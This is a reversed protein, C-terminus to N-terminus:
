QPKAGVNRYVQQVSQDQMYRNARENKVQQVQGESMEEQTKSANLQVNAEKVSSLDMNPPLGVNILYYDGTGWGVGDYVKYRGDSETYDKNFDPNQQKFADFGEQNVLIQGENYHVKNKGGNTEVHTMQSDIKVLHHDIGQLNYTYGSRGSIVYNVNTKQSSVDFADPNVQNGDFIAKNGDDIGTQSVGFGVGLFTAQTGKSIPTKYYVGGVQGNGWNWEKNFTGTVVNGDSGRPISHTSGTVEGTYKEPIAQEQQKNWQDYEWRLQRNAAEQARQNIQTVKLNYDDISQGGWKWTEGSEKWVRGINEAITQAQEESAGKSIALQKVDAQTVTNDGYPRIADKSYKKFDLMNVDVKDESGFYNIKDIKKQRFLAIQENMSMYKRESKGDGMPVEVYGGSIFKGDQRDKIYGAMAEKTEVANKAEKSNLINSKYNNLAMLGGSAMYSRVDGNAKRVGDIISSRETKELEQLREIDEPEYDLGDVTQLFQGLQEQAALQSAQKQKQLAVHKEMVALNMAKDKRERDWDNHAMLAQYVAFKPM